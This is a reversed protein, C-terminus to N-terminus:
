TGRATQSSAFIIGLIILGTLIYRLGVAFGLIDLLYLVLLLLISAGFIGPVNSNGGAISSGGIVPVAISNLLYERGMGLTVGGGFASLLIGTLGGFFGCLVYTIFKNLDVDIAALTAAKSNQGIAHIYRGYPSRTLIFHVVVSVALVVLFLLPVIGLKINVFVSLGEPPKIQLGRFFVISLTQVIFGSALTAIMPPIRLFRILGFNFAGIAAGVLLGALVGWLINGDDANMVKMAVFGTLGITYPISLDINGPGLTIVLMQGLGVLMFFSCFSASATLTGLPDSSVLAIVIFVVLAGIYSWLWKVSFIENVSITRLRQALSPM